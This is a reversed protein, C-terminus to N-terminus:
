RSHFPVADFGSPFRSNIVDLVYDVAKPMNEEHITFHRLGGKKGVQCM